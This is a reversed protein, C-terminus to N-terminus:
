FDKLEVPDATSEIEGFGRGIRDLGRARAAQAKRRRELREAQDARAAALHLELLLANQSVIVGLTKTGLETAAVEGEVTKSEAELVQAQEYLASHSDGAEAQTAVHQKYAAETNDEWERRKTWFEVDFVKDPDYKGYIEDFNEAIFRWQRALQMSRNILESVREYAARLDGLNRIDLKQLSKLQNQLQQAQMVVSRIQQITSQTESVASTTNQVLNAFDTFQAQAPFSVSCLLLLLLATRKHRPSTTQM